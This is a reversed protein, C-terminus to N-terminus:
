GIFGDVKSGSADFFTSNSMTFLTKERPLTPYFDYDKNLRNYDDIGVPYQSRLYLGNNDVLKYSRYSNTNKYTLLTKEEENDNNYIIQNGIDSINVNFLVNNDHGDLSPQMFITSLGNTPRARNEVVVIDQYEIDNPDFDNFVGYNADDDSLSFYAIDSILGNTTLLEKGKKTLYVKFQNTNQNIYGM